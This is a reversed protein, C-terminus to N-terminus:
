EYFSIAFFNKLMREFVNGFIEGNQGMETAVTIEKQILLTLYRALFTQSRKEAELFNENVINVELVEKNIRSHWSFGEEPDPYVYHIDLGDVAAFTEKQIKEAKKGTKRREEGEQKRKKLANSDLSRKRPETSIIPKEAFSRNLGSPTPLAPRELLTKFQPPIINPNKKFFDKVKRIVGNAV